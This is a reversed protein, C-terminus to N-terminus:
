FGSISLGKLTVVFSSHYKGDYVEDNRKLVSM